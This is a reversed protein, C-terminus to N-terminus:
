GVQADIIRVLDEVFVDEVVKDTIVNLNRVRQFEIRYLDKAEDLIIHVYGKWRVMGSTKFRLGTKTAVLDKAGWSGFAWRDLCRIQDRIITAINM